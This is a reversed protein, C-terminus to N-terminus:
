IGMLIILSDGTEIDITGIDFLTLRYRNDNIKETSVNYPKKGYELSYAWAVATTIDTFVGEVDIYKNGPAQVVESYLLRTARYNEDFTLNENEDWVRLGYPEWSLSSSSSSSSSQSSSSSSVELCVNAYILFRSYPFFTGVNTPTTYDNFAVYGPYQENSNYNLYVSSDEFIVGIYYDIGSEISIPSSFVATQWEGPEGTGVVPPTTALLIGDSDFIVGKWHKGIQEWGTDSYHTINLVETSDTFQVKM